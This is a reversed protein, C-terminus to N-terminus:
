RQVIGLAGRLGPVRRALAYGALSLSFTLVVILLGEPLPQLQWSLLLRHLLIIITQHLIYICFVAPALWRLWAHDADLWQRAFGCAAMIAWWQLAGYLLRQAVRLAEPPPLQAYTQFYATILMWGLLALALAPWRCRRVLDWLPAGGRAALLGMVFVSLYQLHNYLDGTFDHTSPFRGVLLRAAMLPLALLGLLQWPRCRALREALKDLWAPAWRLLVWGVIGYAWLYPLFWLHNWTPLHLCDSGRCFGGYGQVYLRMFDLMSGGYGLKQVVEFYAQPPVVVFMGFVLPWLLRLSRRRVFGPGIGREGAPQLAAGAVFFLLGLRWPSLLLMLPEIAPGAAPSKVHWDWSVYLMGVHYPVLLAFALVRLWDLFFLRQPAAAM